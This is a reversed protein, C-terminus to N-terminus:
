ANEGGNQQPIIAFIKKNALYAYELKQGSRAIAENIVSKLETLVKKFENDDDPMNDPLAFLFSQGAPTDRIKAVIEERFDAHKGRSANILELVEDTSKYEAQSIQFSDSNKASAYQKPQIKKMVLKGNLAFKCFYSMLTVFRDISSESLNKEKVIDVFEKSTLSGIQKMMKKGLLGRLDRPYHRMWARAKYEPDKIFGDISGSFTMKSPPTGPFFIEWFTKEPNRKMLEYYSTIPM